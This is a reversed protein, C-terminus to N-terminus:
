FEGPGPPARLSTPAQCEARQFALRLTRGLLSEHGLQLALIAIRYFQTRGPTYLQCRPVRDFGRTKHRRYRALGIRRDGGVVTRPQTVIGLGVEAHDAFRQASMVRMM